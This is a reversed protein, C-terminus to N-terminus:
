ATPWDLRAWVVQALADGEIGWDSALAAVIGLGRGCEESSDHEIWPGGQDEVEIWLYDGEYAEARVTFRGGPKSSASHLVANSALESCILVADDVLPCGKLAEAVFARAHGVQEALGPYSQACKWSTAPAAADMSVGLYGTMYGAGIRRLRPLGGQDRQRARGRDALGRHAQAVSRADVWTGSLVPM